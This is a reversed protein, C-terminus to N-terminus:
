SVLLELGRIFPDIPVTVVTYEGVSSSEPVKTRVELSHDAAQASPSLTLSAAVEDFVRRAFTLMTQERHHSEAGLSSLAATSYTKSIKSELLPPTTVRCRLATAGCHFAAICLNSQARSSASSLQLDEVRLAAAGGASAADLFQKGKVDLSISGRRLLASANRIRRRNRGRTARVDTLAAPLRARFIELNKRWHLAFLRKVARQTSPPCPEDM